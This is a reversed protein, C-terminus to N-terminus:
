VGKTAHPSQGCHDGAIGGLSESYSVAGRVRKGRSERGWGKQIKTSKEVALLLLWCKRSNLREHMNCIQAKGQNRNVCGTLGHIEPVWVDAFLNGAHYPEGRETCLPTVDLVRLRLM